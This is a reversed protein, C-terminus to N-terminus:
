SKGLKGEANVYREASRGIISQFIQNGKHNKAKNGRSCIVDYPGPSFAESLPTMSEVVSAKWDKHIGISTLKSFPLQNMINHHIFETM